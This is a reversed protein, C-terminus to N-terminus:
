SSWSTPPHVINFHIKSLITHYPNSQDPESFPGTSTEQSCSWSDEPEM